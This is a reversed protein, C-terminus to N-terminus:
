VQSKRLRRWDLRFYDFLLGRGKPTVSLTRNHSGRRLGGHAELRECIAAGLWGAVHYRRETWDLCPRVVGRRLDPPRALDHCALWHYGDSSISFGDQGAIIHGRAVLSDCIAVGLQGAVHDYCRRALRFKPDIRNPRQSAADATLSLTEIATAVNADRLRYFRSRGRARVILLGGDVLQALHASAAQPSAGALRALESAPRESGDMLAGIMAARVPNGVLAGVRAINPLGGGVIMPDIM